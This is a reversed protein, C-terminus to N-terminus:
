RRATPSLYRETLYGRARALNRAHSADLQALQECLNVAYTQLTNEAETQLAECRAQRAVMGARPQDPHAVITESWALIIDRRLTLDVLQELLDALRIYNERQSEYHTTLEAIIRLSPQLRVLRRTRRTIERGVAEAQCMLAEWRAPYAELEALRGQHQTDFAARLQAAQEPSPPQKSLHYHEGYACRYYSLSIGARAQRWACMVIADELTAYALKRECSGYRRQVEPFLQALRRRSADDM